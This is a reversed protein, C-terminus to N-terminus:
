YITKELRYCNIFVFVRFLVSLSLQMDLDPVEYAEETWNTLFSLQCVIFSDPTFWEDSM